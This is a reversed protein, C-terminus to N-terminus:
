RRMREHYYRTLNTQAEAQNAFAKVLLLGAVFGGIHAAYAVGGVQSDDGLVGLGSILQFAFWLGLAVFAPVATIFYGILVNVRRTPFLVIYGGLVGSIAGSAGLMPIFENGGSATTMAVQAVAAAIGCILYFMLFKKSGMAHELNDGFVWLFMMNGFLHMFGGHMFMSTIVTLYVNIPTERLNLSGGPNGTIPDVLRVTQAVDQGTLVEHPVLSFAYTFAENTGLGQLFVFVGINALMLLITVIAPRSVGSPEDSIPFM